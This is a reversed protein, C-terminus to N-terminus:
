APLIPIVINGWVVGHGADGVCRWIGGAYRGWVGGRMM